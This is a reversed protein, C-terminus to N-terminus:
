RGLKKRAAALRKELKERKEIKAVQAEAKKVRQALTNKRKSSSSKSGFM